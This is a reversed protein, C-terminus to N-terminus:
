YCEIALLSSSTHDIFKIYEIFTALLGPRAVARALDEERLFLPLTGRHVRLAQLALTQLGEKLAELLAHPKLCGQLEESTLRVQTMAVLTMPILTQQLDIVEEGELSALSPWPKAM